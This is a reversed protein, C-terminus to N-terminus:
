ASRRVDSGPAVECEANTVFVALVSLNHVIELLNQESVRCIGLHWVKRPHGGLIRRVLLMGRGEDVSALLGQQHLRRSLTHVSASLQEVGVM